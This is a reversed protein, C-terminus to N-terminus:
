GLTSCRFAAKSLYEIAKGAFMLSPQFPKGSVFVRTIVLIQLNSAYFTKYYQGQTLRM